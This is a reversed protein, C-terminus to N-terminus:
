GKDVLDLVLVGRDMGGVALVIRAVVVAVNLAPHVEHRLVLRLTVDIGGVLVIVVEVTGVATEHREAPALVDVIVAGGGLFKDVVADGSLAVAGPTHTGKLAGACTMDGKHGVDVGVVDEVEVQRGAVVIDGVGIILVSGAAGDRESSVM